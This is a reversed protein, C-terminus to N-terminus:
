ANMVIYEGEPMAYVPLSQDGYGELDTKAKAWDIPGRPDHEGYDSTYHAITKIPLIGLGEKLERWDCTWFYSSLAHTTASSTGVVKGKWVETVNLKEFWYQALHDDGGSCYIIDATAVQSAFTDPFALEYSPTVSDPVYSNLADICPALKDEWVERPQAFFCLLIRPNSGLGKALETFYKKAGDPNNRTGGSNLVYKTM